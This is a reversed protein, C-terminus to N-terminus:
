GRKEPAVEKLKKGKYTLTMCRFGEGVQGQFSEQIKKEEESM